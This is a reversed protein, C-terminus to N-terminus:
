IPTSNHQCGISAALLLSAHELHVGFSGVGFTIGIEILLISKIGCANANMSIAILTM